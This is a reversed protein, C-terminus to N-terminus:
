ARRVTRPKDLSHICKVTSKKQQQLKKRYCHKAHTFNVRM